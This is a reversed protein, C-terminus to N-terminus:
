VALMRLYVESRRLVVDLGGLAWNFRDEIGLCYGLVAWMHM